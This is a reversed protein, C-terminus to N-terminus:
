PIPCGVQSVSARRDSEILAPRTLSRKGGADLLAQSLGHSQNRARPQLAPAAHGRGCGSAEAIRDVSEGTKELMSQAALVRQHILWQHPTTGNQRLFQRAFTRPSMAARKALEEVRLPRALNKQAWVLM